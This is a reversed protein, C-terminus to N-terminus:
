KRRGGRAMGIKEEEGGAGLGVVHLNVGEWGAPFRAVEQFAEVAIMGSGM